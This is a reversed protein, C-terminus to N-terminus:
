IATLKGTLLTIHHGNQLVVTVQFSHTGAGFTAINANSLNFAIVQDVGSVAITGTIAVNNCTFTVTRGTLDPWSTSKWEVARGETGYYDDALFVEINLTKTNVPRGFYEGIATAFDLASVKAYIAGLSFDLFQNVKALISGVSTNDPAVYDSALMPTTPIASIPADLNDLRGDASMMVGSLDVSTNAIGSIPADLYNLHPDTSLLTDTPIANVSSQLAAINGNIGAVDDSTALGSVSPPSVYDSALLPNTPISGIPANLYDLRGDSALLPVTPIASIQADLNDLRTDSTQLPSGLGAISNAIGSLDPTGIAKTALLNAMELSINNYHEGNLVLVDQYYPLFVGSDKLILKYLGEEAAPFSSFSLKLVGSSGSIGVDSLIVGTSDEAKTSVDLFLTTNGNLITLTPTQYQGGLYGGNLVGASQSMPIPGLLIECAGGAVLSVLGTYGNSYGPNVQSLALSLGEVNALTFDLGNLVTVGSSPLMTDASLTNTPIASIPANLNDLRADDSLLTTTPIASVRADLNNGIADYMASLAAEITLGNSGVIDGVLVPTLPIASIAADLNNLRADSDLLPNAPISAVQSCLTTYTSDNSQLPNGIESSIANGLGDMMAQITTIVQSLPQDLYSIAYTNDLLPNTPIAGVRADLNALNGLNDLRPDNTALYDGPFSPFGGAIANTNNNIDNIASTIPYDLKTDLCSQITSLPSDLNGLRYDDSLLPTIPIASIPADLNNLRTDNTSMYDSPVNINSIYNDLYNLRADSAQETQSIPADLNNLRYDGTQLPNGMQSSLNNSLDTISENLNSTVLSSLADVTSQLAAVSAALAAVDSTLSDFDAM